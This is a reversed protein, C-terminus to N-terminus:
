QTDNEQGGKVKLEIMKIQDRLEAAKEYEEKKIAQHLEAKLREIEHKLKLDGGARQPIKGTHRVTGHIRKLLPDIQEGFTDYCESCGLKGIKSFHKHSFGCKECDVRSDKAFKLPEIGPYSSNFFDAFFNQLVMKPDLQIAFNNEQQVCVECLRAETKKGNVIKTILVTAPREQCKECIM